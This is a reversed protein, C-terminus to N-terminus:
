PMRFALGGSEALRAQRDMLQVMMSHLQSVQTTLQDVQSEMRSNDAAQVVPVYFDQQVTASPMTESRTRLLGDSPVAGRMAGGGVGTAGPNAGGAAAAAAAAPPTASSAVASDIKRQESWISGSRELEREELEEQLKKRREKASRKFKSTAKLITLTNGLYSKPVYSDGTLGRENRIRTTTTLKDRDLHACVIRNTSV